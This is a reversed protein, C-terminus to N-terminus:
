DSVTATGCAAEESKVRGCFGFSWECGGGLKLESRQIRSVGFFNNSFHGM